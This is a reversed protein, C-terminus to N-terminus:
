IDGPQPRLLMEEVVTRPSLTVLTRVAEGIDEPPMFRDAPIDAGDWSPTLTAGPLLTTVRLGADRTEERVARALGLLGHKSACYAVGNPYGKVSAVSGMYVLLGSGRLTMGPLFARTVLFASTLNVTLQSQFDALSTDVLSGPVFSGANNVVVDPVGHGDAVQATMRRVTDQDTVDCPFITAESGAARCADAVSELKAANRAVLCLTHGDPALARAIAAGIGQSAGTIVIVAM